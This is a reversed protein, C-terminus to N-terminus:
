HSARARCLSRRRVERKWLEEEEDPVVVHGGMITSLREALDLLRRHEVEFDEVSPAAQPANGSKHPHASPSAAGDKDGSSTAQPDVNVEFHVTTPKPAGGTSTASAASNAPAFGTAALSSSMDFFCTSALSSPSAPHHLQFYKPLPIPATAEPRLLRRRAFHIVHARSKAAILSCGSRHM